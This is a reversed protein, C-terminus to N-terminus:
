AGKPPLARAASIKQNYDRVKAYQADWFGQSRMTDLFERSYGFKVWDREKQQFLQEKVAARRFDFVHDDTADLFIDRTWRELVAPALDLYRSNM